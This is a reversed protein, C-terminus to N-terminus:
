GEAAGSEVRPTPPPDPTPEAAPALLPPDIGEAVLAPNSALPRSVDLHGGLTRRQQGNWLLAVQEVAGLNRIVTEVLSYVMLMERQSGVAPPNGGDPAELDLVVTGDALTFASRLRVNEPMPPRLSTNEPGALLASVLGMVERDITESAPLLRTEGYLRGGEGPFYLTREVPPVEDLPDLTASEEGEPVEALSGDVVADDGGRPWFLITALLAIVLVVAVTWITRRNM